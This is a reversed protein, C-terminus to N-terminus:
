DKESRFLLKENELKYLMLRFVYEPCERRGAEWEEVARKSCGFYSSFAKQTMGSAARLDRITAIIM